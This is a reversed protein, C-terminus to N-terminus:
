SEVANAKLFLNAGRINCTASELTVMTHSLAGWSRFRPESQRFLDCRKQYDMRVTIRSFSRESM